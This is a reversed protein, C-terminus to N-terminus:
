FPRVLSDCISLLLSLLQRRGVPRVDNSSGHDQGQHLISKRGAGKQCLCFSDRRKLRRVFVSTFQKHRHVQSPKREPAGPRVLLFHLWCSCMFMWSATSPQGHALHRRSTVGRGWSIHNGM